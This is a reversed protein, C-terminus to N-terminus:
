LIKVEWGKELYFGLRASAQNNEAKGKFHLDVVVPDLKGDALRMIRGIVQELTAPNVIPVAMILCSLINLSIGESFIQRSGCIIEASGDKIKQMEADRDKTEGIVVVAREGLTKKLKHMFQVRDAIILVKHGENAKIAALSAILQIYEPDELLATVKDAWTKGYPLQTGLKICHITPNMTNNQPPKYVKPGFYDPFLIHKGDKRTMTGSLAIRYRAHCENILNTFTTAPTHHAEDMILTGYSKAVHGMNNVLSQVNGVVIPSGTNYDGGGIIGPKFGYLKEVEGIWQDRLASTHTVVLTKQGLKHAIHLATFTKGWGPLANIFCSDNVEDYIITQEPFLDFKPAPFDEFEIVRKDIIEYGPPILDLRGQPISVIKPTVMRYNRIIEARQKAGHVLHGSIEIKYTLAQFLAHKDEPLDM